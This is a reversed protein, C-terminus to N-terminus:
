GTRTRCYYGGVSLVLEVALEVVEPWRERLIAVAERAAGDILEQLEGERWGDGRTYLGINRLDAPSPNADAV